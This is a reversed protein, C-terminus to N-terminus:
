PTAPEIGAALLTKIKRPPIASRGFAPSQLDGRKPTRQNSDLEGWLCLLGRSCRPKKQKHLPSFASLEAKAQIQLSSSQSSGAPTDRFGAGGMFMVLRAFLSAKKTEARSLFGVTRSEGPNSTILEALFRRAHGPIWSGGYVYCAERVALSKKNRCLLSLRCNPKRRSEFHLVVNTATTRAKARLHFEAFFHLVPM